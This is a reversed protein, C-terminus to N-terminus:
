GQSVRKLLFPYSVKVDVNGAPKPFRWGKLKQVICNEVAGSDLSSSGAVARTVAGNGGIIFDVVMRGNLSPQKQLGKEYCYIVQGINRNIVAAIQSRELGGEIEGEEQVPHYYSGSSGGVNLTGYGARGGAQGKTGYGFTNGAVDGGGGSHTLLGKGGLSNLMSGKSKIGASNGSGAYPNASNLNLGAGSKSGKKQGGLAALVGFNNVDKARTNSANMKSQVKPPQKVVQQVSKVVKKGVKKNKLIKTESMKVIKRPPKIIEKKKEPLLEQPVVTVTTLEEKTSFAWNLAMMASVLVVHSVGSWKIIGKFDEENDEPLMEAVNVYLDKSSEVLQIHGLGEIEVGKSPKIDKVAVTKIKDFKVNRTKLDVLDHAAEVRRTDHRYIVHLQPFNWNYTRITEGRSNIFALRNQNKLQASM